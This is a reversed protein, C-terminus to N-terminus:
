AAATSTCTCRVRRRQDPTFVRCRVGAIEREVAEPAPEFSVAFMERQLQRARVQRAHSRDCRPQRDHGADSGDREDVSDRAEPRMAEIEDSWLQM